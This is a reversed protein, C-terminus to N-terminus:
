YIEFTRRFSETRAKSVDSRLLTYAKHKLSDAYLITILYAMMRGEAYRIRFSVRDSIIAKINFLTVVNRQSLTCVYAKYWINGGFLWIPLSLYITNLAVKLLIVRM